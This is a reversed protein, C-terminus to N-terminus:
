NNMYCTKHCTERALAAALCANREELGEVLDCSENPAPSEAECAELCGSLSLDTHEDEGEKFIVGGIFLGILFVVAIAVVQAVGAGQLHRRPMIRVERIASSHDVTFRTRGRRRQQVRRDAFAGLL